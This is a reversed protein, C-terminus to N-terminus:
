RRRLHPAAASEILRYAGHSNQRSRSTSVPFESFPILNMEVGDERRQRLPRPGRKLAARGNFRVSVFNLSRSLATKNLIFSDGRRTPGMWSSQRFQLIVRLVAALSPDSQRTAERNDRARHQSISSLECQGSVRWGVLCFASDLEWFSRRRLSPASPPASEPAHPWGSALNL